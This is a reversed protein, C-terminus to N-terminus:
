KSEKNGRGVAHVFCDKDCINPVKVLIYAINFLPRGTNLSYVSFIPFWSQPYTAGGFIVRIIGSCFGADTNNIIRFCLTNGKKRMMILALRARWAWRSRSSDWHTDGTDNVRGSNRSKREM